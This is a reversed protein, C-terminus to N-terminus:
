ARQDDLVGQAGLMHGVVRRQHGLDHRLDLPDALLPRLAGLEGGERAGVVVVELAHADALLLNDLYRRREGGLRGGSLAAITLEAGSVTPVLSSNRRM